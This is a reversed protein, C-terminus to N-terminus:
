NACLFREHFSKNVSGFQTSADEMKKNSRVVFYAPNRKQSIKYKKIRALLVFFDNMRTGSKTAVM